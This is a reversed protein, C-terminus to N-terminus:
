RASRSKKPPSPKDPNKKGRAGAEGKSASSGGTARSRTRRPSLAPYARPSLTQQGEDGDAEEKEKLRKRSEGKGDKGDSLQGPSKSGSNRSVADGARSPPSKHEAARKENALRAEILEEDEMCLDAPRTDDMVRNNEGDFFELDQRARKPAFAKRANELLGSDGFTQQWGVSGRVEKVLVGAGQKQITVKIDGQEVSGIHVEEEEVEQGWQQRLREAESVKPRKRQASKSVGSKDSGGGGDGSTTNSESPHDCLPDELFVPNQLGAEKVLMDILEDKKLKGFLSADAKPTKAPSLFIGNRQALEHIKGKTQGRLQERAAASVMRQMRQEDKGGKEGGGQTKLSEGRGGPSKSRAGPRGGEAARGRDGEESASRRFNGFLSRVVVVIALLLTLPLALAFSVTLMLKEGVYLGPWVVKDVAFTAASGLLQLYALWQAEKAVAQLVAELLADSADWDQDLLDVKPPESEMGLRRRYAVLIAHETDLGHTLAKYSPGELFARVRDEHESMAVKRPKWFQRAQMNFRDRLQRCGAERHGMKLPAEGVASKSTHEAAVSGAITRGRKAADAGSLSLLLSPARPDPGAGCLELVKAKIEGLPKGWIRTALLELLKHDAEVERDDVVLVYASACQTASCDAHWFDLLQSLLESDDALRRVSYYCNHCSSREIQLLESGRLFHLPVEHAPQPRHARLYTQTASAQRNWESGEEGWEVFPLGMYVLQVEGRPGVISRVGPARFVSRMADRHARLDHLLEKTEFKYVRSKDCRYDDDLSGGAAECLWKNAAHVDPLTVPDGPPKGIKDLVVLKKSDVEAGPQSLPLLQVGRRQGGGGVTHPAGGGADRDVVDRGVSASACALSLTLLFGRMCSM